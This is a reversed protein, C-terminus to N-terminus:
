PKVEAPPIERLLVLRSFCTICRVNFNGAFDALRSEQQLLNAAGVGFRLGVVTHRPLTANADPGLDYSKPVKCIRCWLFETM